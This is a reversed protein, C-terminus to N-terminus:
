PNSRDRYDRRLHVLLGGCAMGIVGSIALTKVIEGVVRVLSAHLEQNLLSFSWYQSGLAIL